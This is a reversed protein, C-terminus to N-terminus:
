KKYKMSYQINKLPCIFLTLNRLNKNKLISYINYLVEFVVINQEKETLEMVQAFTMLIFAIVDQWIVQLKTNVM